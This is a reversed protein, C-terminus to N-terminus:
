PFRSFLSHLCFWHIWIFLPTEMAVTFKEEWKTDNFTSKKKKQILNRSWWYVNYFAVNFRSKSFNFKVINGVCNNTSGLPDTSYTSFLQAHTHTHTTYTPFIHIHYTVNKWKSLSHQISFIMTYMYGNYICFFFIFLFLYLEVSFPAFPYQVNRKRKKKEFSFFSFISHFSILIFHMLHHTWKIKLHNPRWLFFLFSYLITTINRYLSIIFSTCSNQQLDHTLCCGNEKTEHVLYNVNHNVNFTLHPHFCSQDNKFPARKPPHENSPPNCLATTASLAVVTRFELKWIKM